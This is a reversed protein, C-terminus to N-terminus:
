IKARFDLIVAIWADSKNMNLECTNDKKLCLRGDYKFNLGHSNYFLLRWWVLVAASVLNQEVFWIYTTVQRNAAM